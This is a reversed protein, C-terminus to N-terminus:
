NPNPSKLSSASTPYQVPISPSYLTFIRRGTADPKDLGTDQKKIVCNKVDKNHTLGTEYVTPYLSSASIGNYAVAASFCPTRVTSKTDSRPLERVQKANPVADERGSAIHIRRKCPTNAPAIPTPRPFMAVIVSGLLSPRAYAISPNTDKILQHYIRYM